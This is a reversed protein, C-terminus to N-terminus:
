PPGNGSAGRGEAGVGGATRGPSDRPAGPRAGCPGVLGRPLKQWHSGSLLPAPGPALGQAPPLGQSVAVDPAPVRPEEWSLVRM